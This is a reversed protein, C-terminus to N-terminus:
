ITGLDGLSWNKLAGDWGGMGCADMSFVVYGQHALYQNWSSGWRKNVIQTGPM